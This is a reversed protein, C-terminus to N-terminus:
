KIGMMENFERKRERIEQERQAKLTDALISGDHTGMNNINKKLPKQRM